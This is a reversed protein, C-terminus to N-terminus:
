DEIEVDQWEDQQTVRQNLSIVVLNSAKKRQTEAVVESHIFKVLSSRKKKDLKDYLAKFDKSSCYERMIGVICPVLQRDLANDHRLKCSHHAILNFVSIFVPKFYKTQRLSTLSLHIFLLYAKLNKFDIETLLFAMKLCGKALLAIGINPISILLTAVVQMGGHKFISLLFRSLNDIPVSTCKQSLIARKIVNIKFNNHSEGLEIALANALTAISPTHNILLTILSSAEPETIRQHIYNTFFCLLMAQGYKSLYRQTDNLLLNAIVKPSFYSDLTMKLIICRIENFKSESTLLKSTTILIDRLINADCGELSNVAKISLALLDSNNKKTFYRLAISLGKLAAERIWSEVGYQIEIIMYSIMIDLDIIETDLTKQIWIFGPLLQDYFCDAFERFEKIPKWRTQDKYLCMAQKIVDFFITLLTPLLPKILELIETYMRGVTCLHSALNFYSSNRQKCNKIGSVYITIVGLSNEPDKGMNSIHFILYTSLFDGSIEFPLQFGIKVAHLFQSDYLDLVRGDENTNNCFIDIIMKLVPFSAEQLIHRDTEVARCVSSIIDDLYETVLMIMSAVTTVAIKAVNIMCLKVEFNPEVIDEDSLCNAVLIKGIISIWYEINNEDMSQALSIIFESARSDHTYQLLNLISPITKTLNLDIKKFKLLNSFVSCAALSARSTSANLDPMSLPVLHSINHVFSIITNTCEYYVEQSSCLPVFEFTRLLVSIINIAEDELSSSITEIMINFCLFCNYLVLPTLNINFAKHLTVLQNTTINLSEIRIQQTIFLTTIAHLVYVLENNNAIRSDLYIFVRSILEPSLKIFNLLSDILITTMVSSNNEIFSLISELYENKVCVFAGISESLSQMLIPDHTAGLLGLIFNPFDTPLFQIMASNQCTFSLTISEIISFSDRDILYRILDLKNEFQVSDMLKNWNDLFYATLNDIQLQSISMTSDTNILDDDKVFCRKIREKILSSSPSYQFIHDLIFKVADLATPDNIFVLPVLAILHHVCSKTISNKAMLLAIILHRTSPENPYRILVSLTASLLKKFKKSDRSFSESLLTDISFKIADQIISMRFYDDSLVSVISLHASFMSIDTFSHIDLSNCSSFVTTILNLIDEKHTEIVDQPRSLNDLIIKNFKLKLISVKTFSIFPIVFQPHTKSINKFFSFIDKKEDKPLKTLLSKNFTSLTDSISGDDSILTQLLKIRIQSHKEDLVDKFFTFRLDSSLMEVFNPISQNAFSRIFNFLQKSNICVKSSGYLILFENMVMSIISPFTKIMKFVGSLDDERDDSVVVWEREDDNSDNIKLSRYAAKALFMAFEYKVYLSNSRLILAGIDLIHNENITLNKDSNDAFAKLIGICALLTIEDAKLAVRKIYDAIKPIYSKLADSKTFFVDAIANLIVKENCNSKLLFDLLKPIRSKYQSGIHRFIYCTGTIASVYNKEFIYDLLMHINLKKTKEYIKLLLNALFISCYPLLEGNNKTFLSIILTELNSFQISDLKEFDINCKNITSMIVYEAPILHKANSITQLEPFFSDDM